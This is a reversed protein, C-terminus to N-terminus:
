IYDLLSGTTYDIYQGIAIRQINECSSLDNKSASSLSKKRQHYCQLRKNRCGCDFM